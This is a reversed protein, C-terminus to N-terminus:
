ILILVKVIKNSLMSMTFSLKTLMHKVRFSAQFQIIRFKKTGGPSVNDNCRRVGPNSHQSVHSPRTVHCTYHSLKRGPTQTVSRSLTVSDTIHSMVDSMVMIVDCLLFAPAHSLSYIHITTLYFYNAKVDMIRSFILLIVHPNFTPHHLRICFKQILNAADM